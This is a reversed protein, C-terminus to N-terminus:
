APPILAGLASPVPHAANPESPRKQHDSLPRNGAPWSPLHRWDRLRDLRVYVCVWVSANKDNGKLASSRTEKATRTVGLFIDDRQVAFDVGAVAEGRKTTHLKSSDDHTHGVVGGWDVALAVLPTPHKVSPFTSFCPFRVLSMISSSSYMMRFAPYAVHTAASENRGGIWLSSVIALAMVTATSIAAQDTEDRALRPSGECRYVRRQALSSFVGHRM